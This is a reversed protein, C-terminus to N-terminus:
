GLNNKFSSIILKEKDDTIDSLKKYESIFLSVFDKDFIEKDDIVRTLHRFNRLRQSMSLSFPFSKLDAVDILALSIGSNNIDIVINGLHFSRFLIGKKHLGSMLSAIEKIIEEREKIALNTNSLLERASSGPISSYSLIESNIEDDFYVADVVPAIFGKNNLKKCNKAFLKAKSFIKGKIANRNYFVKYIKKEYLVVKVGRADSELVKANRKILESLKLM